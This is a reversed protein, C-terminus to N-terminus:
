ITSELPVLGERIAYRTLGAVSRIGLKRIIHSRHMDVTKPSLHLRHAIAQTTLGEAVFQLVERERGTLATFASSEPGASQGLYDDIVVAAAAPSLYREGSAVTRIGRVLEETSATKLIYGSAGAKLMETVFRTEPHVSLALVKTAPVRELIRSTAEIGGLGPLTVDVLCVDPSSATAANIAAEGDHAVGAIELDAETALVACLGDCVLEHDDVVLVRISV